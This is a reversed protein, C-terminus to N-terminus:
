IEEVNAPDTFMYYHLTTAAYLETEAVNIQMDFIQEDDDDTLSFDSGFNITITNTGVGTITTGKLKYGTVSTITGGQNVGGDFDPNIAKLDLYKGQLQNARSSAVKFLGAVSDGTAQLVDGRYYITYNGDCGGRTTGTIDTKEVLDVQSITNTSLSNLAECFAWVKSNAIKDAIDTVTKSGKNNAQDVYNIVASKKDAM